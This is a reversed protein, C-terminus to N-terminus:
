GGPRSVRGPGSVRRTAGRRAVGVAWLVLPVQLPLRAWAVAASGLVGPVGPAGGDLAMQVNGPFVGVFLAATAWAGRRRTAPLAVAVACALQVAGSGLVWARQSGPLEEPVLTEFPRPAVFHLVGATALLGALLWPAAVPWWGRGRGVASM